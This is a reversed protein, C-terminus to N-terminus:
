PQEGGRGERERGEEKKKLSLVLFPNLAIEPVLQRVIPPVTADTQGSLHQFSFLAQTIVRHRTQTNKTNKTSKKDELPRLQCM